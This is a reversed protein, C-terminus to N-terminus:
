DSGEKQDLEFNNIVTKKISSLLDIFPEIESRKISLYTHEVLDQNSNYFYFVDAEDDYEVFISDLDYIFETSGSSTHVETLQEFKWKVPKVKREEAM